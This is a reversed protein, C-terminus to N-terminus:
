LDMLEDGNFDQAGSCRRIVRDFVKVKSSMVCGLSKDETQMQEHSVDAAYGALRETKSGRMSIDDDLHEEASREIGEM